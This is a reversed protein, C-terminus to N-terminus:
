IAYLEGQYISDSNRNLGGDAFAIIQKTNNEVVYVWYDAKEVKSVGLMNKWREKRKQYSLRALYSEPIMGQYTTRWTNVHVLLSRKQM